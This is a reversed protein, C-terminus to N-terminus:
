QFTQSIKIFIPLRPKASAVVHKFQCREGYACFGSETFHKCEKIKQADKGRLEDKGHAFACGDGFQCHGNVWNKCIETKYKVQFDSQGNTKALNRSEKDFDNDLRKISSTLM